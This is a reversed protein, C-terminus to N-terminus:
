SLAAKWRDVSPTGMGLAIRFVIAFTDARDSLVPDRLGDLIPGWLSGGTAGGHWSLARHFYFGEPHKSRDPPTRRWRGQYTCGAIARSAFAALDGPLAELAGKLEELKRAERVASAIARWEARDSENMEDTTM